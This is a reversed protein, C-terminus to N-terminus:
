LHKGCEVIKLYKEYADDWAGVNQPEYIELPFSEAIVARAEDISSFEGCAILQVAINGLATAEIPGAIVTKKTCNATSQCLMKDKVGGGIIHICDIKGGKIKELEEIASRYRLALSETICRAVEGIGDPPTQGTKVCYERIRAPMNGPHNFAEYDPDIFRALTPAKVTYADIDHFSMVNGERELQRRCEQMLWLGIINKLFRIKRGYGGENTYNFNLADASIIPKDTELGLLSWTGCSIYAYNEGKKVPVAAVASGTDHGAVTYVDFAPAGLEECVAPQLRGVRTGSDAIPTFIRSPLGLSSILGQEWQATYPDMLQTTSAISYETVKSGTLFFNFLDPMLLMTEANELLYPKQKLTCYLQFLTNFNQFQIGTKEYVTQKPVLKFVEDQIGDTRTDRYHVPNDLLKDNKDLLGYDVGWTDIGISAIDKNGSNVTKGIGLKIDYFLRLFDWYFSGGILVPDNSFRHIESLSLKKGDFEGLVARGSSAGFDFALVKKGM